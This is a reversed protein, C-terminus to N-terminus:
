EITTVTRTGEVEVGEMMKTGLQETKSNKDDVYIGGGIGIGMGVGVGIGNGSGYIFTPAVVAKKEKDAKDKDKEKEKKAEAVKAEILAKQQPDIKTTGLTYVGKGPITQISFSRGTKEAPNLSYSVGAVPDFISVTDGSGFVTLGGGSSYFYGSGGTSATTERR